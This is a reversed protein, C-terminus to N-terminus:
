KINPDSLFSWKKFMWICAWIGILVGRVDKDADDDAIIYISIIVFAWAGITMYNKIEHEARKYFYDYTGCILGGTGMVGLGFLLFEFM